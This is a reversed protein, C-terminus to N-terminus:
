CSFTPGGVLNASVFRLTHRDVQGLQGGRARSPGVVGRHPARAPDLVRGCEATCVDTFKTYMYTFIYGCVHLERTCTRLYICLCM